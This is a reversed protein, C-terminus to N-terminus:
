ELEYSCPNYIYNWIFSLRWRETTLPLFLFYISLFLSNLLKKKERQLARTNKSTFLLVLFFYFTVPGLALNQTLIRTVFRLIAWVSVRKTRSQKDPRGEREELKRSEEAGRLRVAFVRALLGGDM